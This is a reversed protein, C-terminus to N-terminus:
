TPSVRLFKSTLFASYSFGVCLESGAWCRALLGICLKVHFVTQKALDVSLRLTVSPKIIPRSCGVKYLCTLQKMALSNGNANGSSCFVLM